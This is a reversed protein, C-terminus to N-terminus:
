KAYRKRAEDVEATIEEKELEWCYNDWHDTALPSHASAPHNSNYYQKTTYPSNYIIAVSNNNDHVNKLSVNDVMHVGTTRKPDYPTYKEMHALLIQAFERNLSRGFGKSAIIEQTSANWEFKFNTKAM